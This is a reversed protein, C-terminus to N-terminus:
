DPLLDTLHLDTWAKVVLSKFDRAAKTLAAQKDTYDKLTYEQTKDELTAGNYMRFMRFYLKSSLSIDGPDPRVLLGHAAFNRLDAYSLVTDIAARLEDAYPSFPGQVNLITKVARARKEADQTFSLDMAQYEDYKKAELIIKALLWEVQAFATLTAGRKDLLTDIYNSQDQSLQDSM